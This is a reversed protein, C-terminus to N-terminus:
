PLTTENEIRRLSAVFGRLRGEIAQRQGVTVGYEDFEAQDIMSVIEIRQRFLGPTIGPDTAAAIRYLERDTYNSAQRIHDLAILDRTYTRMCATAFKAGIIDDRSLVPGVDLPVPPSSRYDEGMDIEVSDGTADDVHLRAFSGTDALQVIAVAFGHDKLVSSVKTVADLFTGRDGIRRFLDIEQTPRTSIGHERLAAGGALAFGSDSVVSLAITAIRRQLEVNADM